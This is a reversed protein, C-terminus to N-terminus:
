GLQDAFCGIWWTKEAASTTTIAQVHSFMELSVSKNCTPLIQFM